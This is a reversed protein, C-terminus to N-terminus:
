KQWSKNGVSPKLWLFGKRFRVKQTPCIENALVMFDQLTNTTPWSLGLMNQAKMTQIEEKWAEIAVLKHKTPLM